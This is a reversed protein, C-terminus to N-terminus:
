QPPLKELRWKLLAREVANLLTEDGFPKFIVDVAGAEIARPGVPSDGHGTIFVIPPACRCQELAKQLELGTFGPMQVDLILCGVNEYPARLLFEGASSLVEVEYGASKLLRGLSKGVSADDDVVFVKGSVESM